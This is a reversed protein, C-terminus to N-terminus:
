ASTNANQAGALSWFAGQDFQLGEGDRGVLGDCLQRGARGALVLPDQRPQVRQDAPGGALGAGYELKALLQDIQVLRGATLGQANTERVDEAPDAVARTSAANRRSYEQRNGALRPYQDFFAICRRTL